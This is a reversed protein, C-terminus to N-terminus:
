LGVLEQWVYCRDGEIIMSAMNTQVQWGAFTLIPIQQKLLPKARTTSIGCLGHKCQSSLLRDAM